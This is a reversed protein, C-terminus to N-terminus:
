AGARRIERFREFLQQEEESLDTPLVSKVTVLLDGDGAGSAARKRPMGKGKLRFVKGNQTHPPVKLAVKSGTITPVEVEGGLVVDDLPVDVTVLLDDDKREFTAHPAVTVLLYLDARGGGVHVRAGSAIGPPISVELRRAQERIFPDGPLEITRTAGQYAETLTIKVPVEVRQTRPRDDVGVGGQHGGLLDGLIDGMSGHGEFTARGASGGRSTRARNFWSFPSAGGNGTRQYEGAQRWNAGFRDYKKRSEADSLVQYAQNLEKFRAEAEADGPNVDPHYKRALKRYATRIEKEAASKSVGLIEYYSKAM